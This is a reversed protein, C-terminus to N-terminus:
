EFYSIGAFFKINLINLLRKNKKSIGGLAVVKKKTLNSLLRFKNIGLYNKNKKFISSLFIRNVKQLEKIRIEKLNHASGVIKFKNKLNFSLHSMNNNFSPIYVGDLDLKIALKINNSLFFKINKKKCYKKIKLISSVDLKKNQYNRYIIITKSDQKAINNTDLKSIFYYKNQINTHM